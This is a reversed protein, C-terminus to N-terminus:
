SGYLVGAKTVVRAICQMDKRPASIIANQEAHVAVVAAITLYYYEKGIRM